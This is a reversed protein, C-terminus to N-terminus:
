FPMDDDFSDYDQQAPKQQQPKAQRQQQPQQRTQQQQPAASGGGGQPKGGVLTLDAVRCTVVKGSKGNSEYEREGLEGSVAVQQGKLLYPALSDARNGWLACDVWVTQEKDGYGSKVAVTFNVVSTSGGQGLRCDRGINGTFNFMNM